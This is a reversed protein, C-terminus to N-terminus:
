INAYDAPSLLEKCCKYICLSSQAGYVTQTYGVLHVPSHRHTCTVRSVLGWCFKFDFLVESCLSGVILLCSWTLSCMCRSGVCELGPPMVANFDYYSFDNNVSTKNEGTIIRSKGAVM